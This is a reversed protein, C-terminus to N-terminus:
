FGKIITLLDSEINENEPQEIIRGIEKDNRFLIFTAVNIIDREDTLSSDLSKNRDVAWIKLQNNQVFKSEDVIKIFRPVERRSDSCWTGLFIEIKLDPHPTSLSTIITSDPIYNVYNEQWAPYESFLEDRSIQGYLMNVGDKFVKKSDLKTHSICGIMFTLLVAFLTSKYYSM